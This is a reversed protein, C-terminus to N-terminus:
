ERGSCRPPQKPLTIQQHLRVQTHQEQQWCKFIQRPMLSGCISCRLIGTALHLRTLSQKRKAAVREQVATFTQHDIIPAHNPREAAGVVIQESQRHVKYRSGDTDKGHRTKQFRYVGLYIDNHLIGGIVSVSWRRGRPSAIGRDALDRQIQRMTRGSLALDYVLRVVEAEEQHIHYAGHDDTRYGYIDQGGAKRGLQARRPKGRNMNRLLQRRFHKAMIGNFDFMLYQNPFKVTYGTHTRPLRQVEKVCQVAPM